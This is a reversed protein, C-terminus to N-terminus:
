YLTQAFTLLSIMLQSMVLLANVMAVAECIDHYWILDGKKEISVKLM